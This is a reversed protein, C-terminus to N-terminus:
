KSNINLIIDNIYMQLICITSFKLNINNLSNLYVTLHLLTKKAIKVVAFTFYLSRM